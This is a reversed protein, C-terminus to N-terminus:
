PGRVARAAARALTANTADVQYLVADGNPLAGTWLWTRRGGEGRVSALVELAGLRTRTWVEDPFTAIVEDLAAQPVGALAYAAIVLDQESTGPVAIGLTLDAPADVLVGLSSALSGTAEGTSTVLSEGDLVRRELGVGGVREPLTQLLDQAPASSEIPGPAERDGSSGPIAQVSRAVEDLSALMGEDALGPLSAAMVLYRGTPTRVHYEIHQAYDLANVYVARFGDGVPLEIADVTPDGVDSAREAVSADVQARLDDADIRYPQGALLGFQLLDGPDVAWLGMPDLLGGDAAIHEAAAVLAQATVQDRDAISAISPVPESTDGIVREWAAPLRVSFGLYPMAEDVWAAASPSQAAVQSTTALGWLLLAAIAARVRPMADM